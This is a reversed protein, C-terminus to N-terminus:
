RNNQSILEQFAEYIMVMALTDLECYRLLASEIELRESPHMEQYQMLAYATMAAGGHNLEDIQNLRDLDNDSIDSFLKPLRKYPDKVMGDFSEIWTMSEFNLSPIQCGKGYISLSYKEKLKKSANLVAPLVAKISISGNTAPAYYYRKVIEYLDIMTREGHEFESGVKWRTISDIFQQLDRGDIPPNADTALQKQIERLVSNEHTHYRFISGNDNELEKRLARVFEYNPNTDQRTNLYQGKHQITGDQHVIHHSFQFAVLSYPKQGRHFPIAVRSTEFDIFHLPYVWNEMERRLGDQDVWLSDDNNQTKEIQIWQRESTSMGPGSDAAPAIEERRIDAMKFRQDAILSAKLNANLKWVNLANPVEFDQDSWNLAEKWCERYGCRLGESLEHSNAKFECGKCVGSPRVIIKVDREYSEALWEIRDVFTTPGSEVDLVDQYIKECISDVKVTCLLRQELEEANLNGRVVVKRQKRGLEDAPESVVLFKQHFGDTSCEAKKDALMLFAKVQYKPFAQTVVHKQFAIDYLYPKWSPRIDGYKNLFDRDEDRDYSKAKVEILEIANGNKVLIDARIFLSKHRIAAEYIVVSDLQLLKNTESIAEDHNLSDVSYGGPYYLKALEGVQFGGDALAALFENEMKSNAYVKNAGSDKGTYFLKSPCEMGLKFRSKTLYRIAAVKLLLVPYSESAVFIEEQM